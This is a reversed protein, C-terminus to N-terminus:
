SSMHHKDSSISYRDLLHGQLLLVTKSNIQVKNTYVVQVFCQTMWFTVVSIEIVMNVFADIKTILRM